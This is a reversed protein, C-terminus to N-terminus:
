PNAAAEPTPANPARVTPFLVQDELVIDPDLPLPTGNPPPFYEIRIDNARLSQAADWMPEVTTPTWRILDTSVRGSGSFSQHILILEDGSQRYRFLSGTQQLGVRVGGCYELRGPGVRIFWVFREHRFQSAAGTDPPISTTQRTEVFAWEATGDHDHDILPGISRLFTSIQSVRHLHRDFVIIPRLWTGLFVFPTQPHGFNMVGSWDDMSSGAAYGRALMPRSDDLGFGLQAQLRVIRPFVVCYSGSLTLVFAVTIVRTRLATRRVPRQSLAIHM